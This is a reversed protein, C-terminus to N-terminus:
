SEREESEMGMAVDLREWWVARGNGVAHTLERGGLAATLRRRCRGGGGLGLFSVRLVLLRELHAM